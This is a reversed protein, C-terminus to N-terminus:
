RLEKKWVRLWEERQQLGETGGNICKTVMHVNDKDAWANAGSIKWIMSAIVLAHEPDNVLDPNTALDLGVLKGIRTYNDRGTIQLLGRGRFKWGDDSGLRNGMRGNYVKDALLRPNHAFPSAQGITHFRNPWVECLRPASYHLNEEMTTGATCEESVQAWFHAERLPTNIEGHALAEGNAAIIGDVLSHPARPWRADLMKETIMM